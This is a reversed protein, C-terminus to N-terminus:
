RQNANRGVAGTRLIMGSYTQSEVSGTPEALVELETYSVSPGTSDDPWGVLKFETGVAANAKLIAVRTWREAKLPVSVVTYGDAYGGVMYTCDVSAKLLFSVLIDSPHSILTSVVNGFNVRNKEQSGRVKAHIVTTASGMQRDTVTTYSVSGNIDAIPLKRSDGSFHNPISPNSLLIAPGFMRVYGSTTLVDPYSVVNQITGLTSLHGELTTTSTSDTSVLTGDWKGYGSCNDLIVASSNEARLFPNIKAEAISAETLTIRAHNAYISAEKVLHGDITIASPGGGNDEPAGGYLHVDNEWVNGFVAMAAVSNSLFSPNVFYDAGMGFKSTEAILVGVTSGVAKLGYFTNSNGGGGTLTTYIKLGVFNNYLSVNSYEGFQAGDLRIGATTCNVVTVNHMATQAHDAGVFIGTSNPQKNCDLRVGDLIFKDTKQLIASNTQNIGICDSRSIQLLAGKSYIKTFQGVNIQCFGFTRTGTFALTVNSPISGITMAPGALSDPVEITGGKSMIAAAANVKAVWDPGSYHAASVIGAFSTEAPNVQPQSQQASLALCLAALLQVGCAIMGQHFTL